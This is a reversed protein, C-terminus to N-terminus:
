ERKVYVHKTTQGKGAYNTLSHMNKPYRIKFLSNQGLVKKEQKEVLGLRDKQDRLSWTSL